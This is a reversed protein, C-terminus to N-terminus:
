LCGSWPQVHLRSESSRGCQGPRRGQSVVSAIACLGSLRRQRLLVQRRPQEPSRCRRRRSAEPAHRLRRAAPRLRHARRPLPHPGIRSPPPHHADCSGPEFAPVPGPSIRGRRSSASSFVHHPNCIELPNKPVPVHQLSPAPKYDCANLSCIVQNPPVLSKALPSIRM